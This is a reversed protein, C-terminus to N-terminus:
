WARPRTWRILHLATQRGHLWRMQGGTLVLAGGIGAVFRGSLFAIYSGALGCIINGVVTVIGGIVLTWRRGFGDAIRAAPVGALFRALGYVAITLGILTQSVDFSKAYLPVVPIISGFGLQNVAIALSIWALIRNDAYWARLATIQQM